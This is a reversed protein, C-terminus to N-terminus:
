EAPRATLLAMEGHASPMPTRASITVSSFGVQELFAVSEAITSCTRAHEDLADVDAGADRHLDYNAFLGGPELRAFAEAFMWRKRENSLHHLASSSVIAHVRRDLRDPWPGVNMDWEVYEFRGPAMAELGRRGLEMMDDSFDVLIAHARPFSALVVEALAGDGAGLDVFEFSSSRPRDIAEAIEAFAARREDASRDRIDGLWHEVMGRRLWHYGGASPLTM